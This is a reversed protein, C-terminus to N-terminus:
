ENIKANEDDKEEVQERTKDLIYQCCIYPRRYTEKSAQMFLM